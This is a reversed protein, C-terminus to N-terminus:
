TIPKTKLIATATLENTQRSLREQLATLAMYKNIVAYFEKGKLDKKKKLPKLAKGEIANSVIIKNLQNDDIVYRENKGKKVKYLPPQAIYVNGNSILQPLERFLFTLLLTRIHSGDVDADTM